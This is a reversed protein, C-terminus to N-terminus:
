ANKLRIQVYLRYVLVSDKKQGMRHARSIAQQEISPKFQPECLIVVNAAQINLGTGGAQIQAVLISGEPSQSFEDIIKQREDPSISGDIPGYVNKKVLNCVQKLTNKFYSFVIVRSHNAKTEEIIEKMRQAKSSISLDEVNFSLQRIEMYSRRLVKDEYIRREVPGMDCWEQKEIKAPLESLVSEKKRRFYVPAITDRFAKASTNGTSHHKIKQAIDPQLMQILSIMESVNNEIPTGTLFLIREANQCMANVSASRKAKPNKVYHAEDVVLLDLPLSLVNYQIIKQVTEYTTVAVGGTKMWRELERRYSPGYISFPRLHSFQRIERCWNILVSLPCIVMFHKMGTNRLSVMTGIAQATKGLGMDDGLLVKKQHLAYKIGWIQYKRLNVRLGDPFFEQEYIEAALDEPLGYNGEDAGVLEPFLNEM